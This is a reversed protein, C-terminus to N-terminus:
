ATQASLSTDDCARYAPFRLRATLGETHGPTLELRGGHLEILRRVLPLGLGTGGHDGLKIHGLNAHSGLIGMIKSSSMGPGNDVVEVHIEGIGAERIWLSIRGGEPTFKVANHLLNTLMQTTLTPDVNLRITECDKSAAISINKTAAAKEVSQVGLKLLDSLTCEEEKLVIEGTKARAMDLMRDTISAVHEATQRIDSLYEPYKPDSLPGFMQEDVIQSLSVITAIPSRIEHAVLAFLDRKAEEAEESTVPVVGDEILKRRMEFIQMALAAFSELQAKKECGFDPHPEYDILCLTGLRFGELSVLPAGAYFRINPNGVVLDSDHFRVDEKADLVVFPGDDLIAHACFAVDRPTEDVDLGVKSKFWQRDCDLISVLTTPVGFTDAVLATLQDFAPEPKTDLIGYRELVELRSAENFPIPFM